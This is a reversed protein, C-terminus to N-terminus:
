NGDAFARQAAESNRQGMEILIAVGQMASSVDSLSAQEVSALLESLSQAIGRASDLILGADDLLKFPDTDPAITYQANLTLWTGATDNTM